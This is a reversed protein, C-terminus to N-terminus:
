FVYGVGLVPKIDLMIGDNVRGGIYAGAGFYMGFSTVYRYGVNTGFTFFHNTHYTYGLGGGLYFDGIKSRWLYNFLGSFGFGVSDQIPISLNIISYFNNKIFEVNVSPGGRKLTEGLPILGGANANIGIKLPEVPKNIKFFVYSGNNYRIYKVDYTSISSIEGGLNQSHRGLKEYGKYKIETETVDLIDAVILFDNKLYIHDKAILPFIVIILLIILIFYNKNM